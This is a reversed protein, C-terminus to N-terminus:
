EHKNCNRIRDKSLPSPIILLVKVPRVLKAVPKKSVAVFMFRFEEINVGAVNAFKEIDKGIAPLLTNLTTAAVEVSQGTSNFLAGLAAIDTVSINAQSAVGAM